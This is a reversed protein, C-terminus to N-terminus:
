QKTGVRSFFRHSGRSFRRAKPWKSEGEMEAADRRSALSDPSYCCTHREAETNPVNECDRLKRMVDPTPDPVRRVLEFRYPCLLSPSARAFSLALGSCIGLDRYRGRRHQGLGVQVLARDLASREDLMGPAPIVFRGRHYSHQGQSTRSDPRLTM